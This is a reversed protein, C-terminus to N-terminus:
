ELRATVVLKSFISKAIGYRRAMADGVHVDPRHSSRTGAKSNTREGHTTSGEHGQLEEGTPQWSTGWHVCDDCRAGQPALTSAVPSAHLAM